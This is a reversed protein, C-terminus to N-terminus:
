GIRSWAPRAINTVTATKPRNVTTNPRDVTVQTETAASM